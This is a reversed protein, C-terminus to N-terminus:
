RRRGNNKLLIRLGIVCFVFLIATELMQQMPNGEEDLTAFRVKNPQDPLYKVTVNDTYRFRDRIPIPVHTPPIIILQGDETHFALSGQYTEGKTQTGTPEAVATLSRKSFANNDKYLQISEFFGGFSVIALLFIFLIIRGRFRFM